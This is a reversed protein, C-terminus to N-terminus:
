KAPLLGDAVISAQGAPGLVYGIFGRVAQTSEGLTLFYIPRVLRYKGSLILETTCAVGDVTIAKIKPNLLGYSLYGISRADNAVTERITGNSDQIIADRTLDFKGLITEFSSRTGSGSERSVVTIPGPTGGVDKWDRINGLYIEKLQAMSLSSVKNAPNVVVAIGDRAVITGKLAAADAPLEVLDAMGIQAAGNLAASIGLASGGGQVTVNVEPHASNYEEALKEAFPQFATSGALTVAGSRGACSAGALSLVCAAVVWTPTGARVTRSKPILLSM